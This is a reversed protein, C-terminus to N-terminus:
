REIRIQQQHHVIWKENKWKGAPTQPKM